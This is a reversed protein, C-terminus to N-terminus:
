ASKAEERVRSTIGRRQLVQQLHQYVMNTEVAIQHQPVGQLFLECAVEDRIETKEPNRAVPTESCAQSCWAAVGKSYNLYGLDAGCVRCRLEQQEPM